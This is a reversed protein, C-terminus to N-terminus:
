YLIIKLLIFLQESFTKVILLIFYIIQSSFLSFYFTTVMKIKCFFALHHLINSPISKCNNNNDNNVFTARVIM